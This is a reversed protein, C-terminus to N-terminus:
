PGRACRRPPSARPHERGDSPPVSGVTGSGSAEVPRIEPHTTGSRPLLLPIFRRATAVTRAAATATATVTAAYAAVLVFSPPTRALAAMGASGGSTFARLRHIMPTFHSTGGNPYM